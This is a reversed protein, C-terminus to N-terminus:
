AAEKPGAKTLAKSAAEAEELRRAHDEISAGSAKDSAERAKLLMAALPPYVPRVQEGEGSRQVGCYPCPADAPDAFRYYVHSTSEVEALMVDHPHSTGVNGDGFTRVVTQKVLEVPAQRHGECLANSCACLGQVTEETVRM